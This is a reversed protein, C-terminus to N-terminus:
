KYVNTKDLRKIINQYEPNQFYSGYNIKRKSNISKEIDDVFKSPSSDAGYVMNEIRVEVKGQDYYVYESLLRKGTLEYLMKQASDTNNISSNAEILKLNKRLEEESIGHAELLDKKNTIKSWIGKVLRCIDPIWLIATLALGLPGTGLLAGSLLTKLGTKLAQSLGVKFLNFIFKAVPGLNKVRSLDWGKKLGKFVLGIQLLSRFAKTIFGALTKALIAKLILNLVSLIQPLYQALDGIKHAINGLTNAIDDFPIKDLVSVISQLIKVVMYSGGAQSFQIGFQYPINKIRQMLADPQQMAKSLAEPSAYMQQAQKSFLKVFESTIKANGKAQKQLKEFWDSGTIGMEEAAKQALGMANPVHTGIQMRLDQSYIAGKSAMERLAYTVREMQYQSLHLVRGVQTWSEFVGRAGDTGLAKQTASYFISYSDATSKIDLATDVALKRIYDFEESAKQNDKTIAYFRSHMAGLDKEFQLYKGALHGVQQIGVFGFLTKSLKSIMGMDKSMSKMSDKTQKLAKDTKKLGSIDAKTKVLVLLAGLIGGGAM